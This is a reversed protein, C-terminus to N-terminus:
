ALIIGRLDKILPPNTRLGRMVLKVRLGIFEDVDGTSFQNEVFSSVGNVIPTVPDIEIWDSEVDTLYKVYMSLSSSTPLMYSVYIRASTSSNDLYIDRSVYTFLDENPSVYFAHITATFGHIDIQPSLNNKATITARIELDNEDFYTGEQPLLFDVGPTFELWPSISRGDAYRYRLEFKVSTGDFTTYDVNVFILDILNRTTCFCDVGGFVGDTTASVDLNIAVHNFDIVEVVQHSKNIYTDSIGNGPVVGSLILTDGAQTGHFPCKIVVRSNGSETTIPNNGLVRGQTNIKPTFYIIESSTSFNARMLDFKLDQMQQASWTSGNSSTFFVGTHPQSSITLTSDVVKEGMEAIYVTYEQTNALVVVAYETQPNLYVLPAFPFYTAVKSTTSVNVSSPNLVSRAVVEHTPLGNSMERIEVTVPINVAKTRFYLNVGQLFVGEQSDISFSQAIPDVRRYETETRQTTGLYRTQVTTRQKTVLTGGSEFTATAFTTRNNEDNPTSANDALIFSAVGTSFKVVSSNPVSFVGRITGSSDTILAGGNQGGNPKCYASVNVNSFWPYVRTFPRLFTGVFSIQIPRMYPIIETKLVSETTTSTSWETLTTTTVTRSQTRTDRGGQMNKWSGYVVGAKQSGRYNVTQNVVRPTTYVTDVWFDRSPTLSVFGAWSFVAYPNVNITKTAYPQTDFRVSTQQSASIMDDNNSGGSTWSFDIGVSDVLPRLRSNATDISAFSEPDETNLLRFDSMPDAFIGNKFRDNGTDPDIVQISSTDTELQSLSTYYELNEIRNELKGIDRMTYRRNNISYVNLDDVTSTWPYLFVDFLRMSNEPIAPVSPSQSSIGNVVGFNGQSTVYVSSFRPLYYEVDAQISTNPAVAASALYVGGSVTKRFDICNRLDFVNGSSDTFTPIDDYEIGIYSDVCFYDGSGHSYYDYEVTATGAPLEVSSEIKIREYSSDRQGGDMTFYDLYDVGDISVSILEIGDVNSLEYVSQIASTTLTQVARTKKKTRPSVVSKRVIAMVRLDANPASPVAIELSSGTPTGVLAYSANLSGLTGDAMGVRFSSFASTFVTGSPATVVGVGTGDTTFDLDVVVSYNTDTEGGSELSKVGTYPIEFILSPQGGVVIGKTTLSGRFVNSGSTALVSVADSWSKGTNFTIDRAVLRILSDSYKQASAVRFNGVESGTGDRFTYLVNYNIIPVGQSAYLEILNGYIAPTVVNNAIDTDRAKDIGVLIHSTNQVRYGYVYNISPSLVGVLKSSDGGEVESYVGGNSGDNLHERIEISTEDVAYNGSEEYTRQALLKELENYQVESLLKTINGDEIRALEIFNPDDVGIDRTSLSITMKLRDAGPSRYNPQGLANSLLDSDDDSTIIEETISFGVSKTIDEDTSLILTEQECRVLMGRVYFVGSDVTAFSGSGQSSVTSTTIPTESGTYDVSYIQITENLTFRNTLGDSGSKTVESFSYVTSSVVDTLYVKAEVGSTEGRIYLNESTQIQSIVSSEAVIYEVTLLKTKAVFNGPIVVSGNKFLNTGISEIQNQLIDQLENLERSQVTQGAKFLVQHFRKTADYDDFYPSKDLDTQRM